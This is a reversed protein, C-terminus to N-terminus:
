YWLNGYWKTYLKMGEKWKKELISTMEKDYECMNHLENQAEFGEIIQTLIRYWKEPTLKSPCGNLNNKFRTLLKITLETMESNFAWVQRDNCGQTLMQWKMKIEYKYERYFWPIHFTFVDTFRTLITEKPYGKMIDEYTIKM